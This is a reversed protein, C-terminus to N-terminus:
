FMLTKIGDNSVRQWNIELDFSFDSSILKPTKAEFKSFFPSTRVTAVGSPINSPKVEYFINLKGLKTMDKCKQSKNSEMFFQKNVM